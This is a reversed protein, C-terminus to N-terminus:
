FGGRESWFEVQVKSLETQHILLNQRSLLEANVQTIYESSTIVGEDLQAALQKLIEAQLNAIKEDQQIQYLLRNVDSQYQAKKSDLNFNFTEEAHILQQSQLSLIDKDVQSKNWDTIQWNMQIGLIGYPAIKNSLFNLPNPYGIGAQAYASLQPKKHVDILDSQALIAERQLKFYELEPRNLNPIEAPSSLAPFNLKVENSIEEGLLITLTKVLGEVQFGVNDQMSKIELEKVKIKILESELLVGMELGAAVQEKRAELDKLSIDFLKSQERLLTIGFFLHNIRERLAFRDVEINQLDAKLKVSKIKRQVDNLGGDLILYQAEAYTKLSWISQDIELPIMPNDSVLSVSQSQIRGDAKVFLKPKKAIDLQELDKQYIQELLGSNQLIPYNKELLSYAELLSLETKTQGFSLTTMLLFMGLFYNIKKM